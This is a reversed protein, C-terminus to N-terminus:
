HICKFPKSTRFMMSVDCDCLSLFTRIESNPYELEAMPRGADLWLRYVQLNNASSEDIARLFARDYLFPQRGDLILQFLFPSIPAPAGELQVMHLLAVFGNVAFQLQRHPQPDESAHICLTQYGAHPKWYASDGTLIGVAKHITAAM